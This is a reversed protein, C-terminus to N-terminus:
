IGTIISLTKDSIKHNIEENNVTEDNILEENPMEYNFFEENPVEYDTDVKMQCKM